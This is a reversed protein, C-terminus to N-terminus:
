RTTISPGRSSSSNNWCGGGGAATITRTVIVEGLDVNVVARDEGDRVPKPPQGRKGGLALSISDLLSSKGQGNRGGIVVLGTEKPELEVATLRKVNEAELRVIRLPKKKM